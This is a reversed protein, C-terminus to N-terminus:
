ETQPPKKRKVKSNHIKGHQHKEEQIRSISIIGIEVTRSRDAIKGKKGKQLSELVEEEVCNLM